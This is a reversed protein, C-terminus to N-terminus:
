HGLPAEDRPAEDGPEDPLYELLDNISRTGFVKMLANLTGFEIGRSKGNALNLLTTYAVGAQQAIARLSLPREGQQARELNREALLVNIRSRVVIRGQHHMHSNM